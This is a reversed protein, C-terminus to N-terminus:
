SAAKAKEPPFYKGDRESIQGSRKARGLIAYLYNTPMKVARSELILRIQTPTLGEVGASEDVIQRVMEAKNHENSNIAVPSVGSKEPEEKSLLVQLATIEERLASDKEKVRRLEERCKEWERQKGKLRSRLEDAFNTM